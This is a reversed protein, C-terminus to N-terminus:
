VEEGVAKSAASKELAPRKAPLFGEPRLRMMLVLLVGFILLRYSETERLIEPLGKLAFAGLFIGPINGIGGVIVLCIVNISVMLVHDDPGTFQNRSAFLVGAFGAIAASLSLALLKSVFANIGTARAVTEDLNIAYWAKGTRSNQLRTAIFTVVLVALIILYMFDVDSIFSQGLLTPGGIDRIGRPGNTYATMLDSKLLIRIIEALGLTVIALYDGRLNLIPLGILLGSIGAALVGLVLAVWFNLVLNHPEPATLLAFTYAGVAFFAVYGIVLQGAWGTIINLGLGLIIYIGVTGFVYNWYGGWTRPLIILIAAFVLLAAYRAYPNKTVRSVRESGILNWAAASTNHLGTKLANNNRLFHSVFAAGVGSVTLLGFMLLSGLPVPQNFLFTRISDPSVSPLYTRPDIGKGALTGFILGVIASIFGASAGAMFGATLARRLSDEETLPRAAASAGAWVGLLVMFISFFILSPPASYSSSVGFIKGVLGAGTVTFGILFMTVIIIGFIVGVRLGKDVASSRM